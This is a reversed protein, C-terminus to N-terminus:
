KGFVIKVRGAFGGLNEEGFEVAVPSTLADPVHTFQGEVAFAIASQSRWEYGGLLHYSKFRRSINESADGGVPRERFLYGGFGAGFYPRSLNPGFHYGLTVSIPVITVTESIGVPFVEGGGAVVRRGTARLARVAAMVFGGTGTRYEVGGGIFPEQSRELIAAFTERALFMELSADAFGRLGTDFSAASRPRPATRSVPAGPRTPLTGSLVEVQTISVLGREGPRGATPPLQVEIWDGQRGLVELVTGQRVVTVFSQFGPRWITAANSTVRVQAQAFAPEASTLILAFISAAFFLTVARPTTVM